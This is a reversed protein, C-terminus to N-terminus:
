KTEWAHRHHDNVRVNMFPEACDPQARADNLRTHVLVVDGATLLETTTRHRPQIEDSAEPPFM